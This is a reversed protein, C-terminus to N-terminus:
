PLQLNQHNHNIMTHDPTLARATSAAIRHLILIPCIPSMAASDLAYSRLRNPMRKFTKSLAINLSYATNLYFTTFGTLYVTSSVTKSLPTMQDNSWVVPM